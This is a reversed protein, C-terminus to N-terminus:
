IPVQTQWEKLKTKDFVFAMTLIDKERSIRIAEVEIKYEAGEEELAERYIGDILGVTPFNNVGDFGNEVIEDLFTKHKPKSGYCM